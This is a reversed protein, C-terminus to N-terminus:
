KIVPVISQKFGDCCVRDSIARVSDFGSAAFSSGLFEFVESFMSGDVFVTAARLTLSTGTGNPATWRNVVEVCMFKLARDSPKRDRNPQAKTGCSNHSFPSSLARHFSGLQLLHVKRVTCVEESM